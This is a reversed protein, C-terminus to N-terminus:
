LFIGSIRIKNLQRDTKFFGNYITEGFRYFEDSHNHVFIHAVEHAAVYRIYEETLKCMALNFTITNTRSNYSGWKSKLLKFCLNVPAGRYGAKKLYEEVAETCIKRCEKAMFSLVREELSGDSLPVILMNGEAFPEGESHTVTVAYQRGLFTLTDGDNLETKPEIHNEALKKRQEKIWETRSEVFEDIVSVAIGYPASVYVNGDEKVRLRLNKM